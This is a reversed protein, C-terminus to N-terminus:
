NGTSTSELRGSTLRLGVIVAKVIARVVRLAAKFYRAPNANIDANSNALLANITGEGPAATAPPPGILTLLTDVDTSAQRRAEQENTRAADRAAQIRQQADTTVAALEAPTLSSLDPIAM